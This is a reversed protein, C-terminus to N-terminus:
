IAFTNLVFEGFFKRWDTKAPNFAWDPFPHVIDSGNVLQLNKNEVEQKDLARIMTNCGPHNPPYFKDWFPDSFLFVKDDLSNCIESECKNIKYYQWYPRSSSNDIMFSYRKTEYYFASYTNFILELNETSLNKNYAQNPDWLDEEGEEPFNDLTLGLDVLYPNINKKFYYFTQGTEFVSLLHENLIKILKDKM